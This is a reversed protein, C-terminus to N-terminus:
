APYGNGPATLLKKYLEIFKNQLYTKETEYQIAENEEHTYLFEDWTIEDIEVDEGILYCEATLNVHLTWDYANVEHKIIIIM